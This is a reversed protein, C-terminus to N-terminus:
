APAIWTLGPVIVEDGAGVDLAELAILLASSGNTTCVAHKVGNFAAWKESFERERTPQGVYVGAISWRQSELVGQLAKLTEPTHVPWAPWSDARRIPTGGNLALM